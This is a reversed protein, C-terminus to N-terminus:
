NSNLKKLLEEAGAKTEAEPELDLCSQLSEKAEENQGLGMKAQAMLFHADANEPFVELVVSLRQEAREYQGSMISFYGLYFNASGHDPDIEVVKRLQGIAQMPPASGTQMMQVAEQVMIELSDPGSTMSVEEAIPAAKPSRPMMYLAVAVLVALSIVIYGERKM